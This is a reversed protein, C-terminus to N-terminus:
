DKQLNVVQNLSEVISMVNEIDTTDLNFVGSSPIISDIQQRIPKIEDFTFLQDLMHITELIKLVAFTKTDFTAGGLVLNRIEEKISFKITPNKLMDSSFHYVQGDITLIKNEKFSHIFEGEIRKRKKGLVEIWFSSKKFDKEYTIQKILDGPIFRNETAPEIIKLKHTSNITGVKTLVIESLSGAVLGYSLLPSKSIQVSGNRKEYLSLLFIKEPISLM